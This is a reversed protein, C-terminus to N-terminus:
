FVGPIFKKVRRAYDAYGRYKKRLWIEEYAAKRDFFVALALVPLVGIWCLWWLTWGLSALIVGTYIPHRMLRFAGQRHLVAGDLPRPFPTLAEGLSFFGWVILAAGLGTVVVGALQVPGAPFFNGPGFQLPVLLALLMLPLQALVWLGGRAVFDERRLSIM